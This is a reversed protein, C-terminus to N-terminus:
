GNTSADNDGGGSGGTGAGGSGGSGTAGAGYDACAAAGGAFSLGSDCKHGIYPDCYPATAICDDNTACTETANVRAQCTSTSDCRLNELCPITASCAMSQAAKGLCTFLNNNAPDPACYAGASCVEGPNGCLQGKNKVVRVACNGKDCIRSADKCDYKVACTTASDGHFVLACVDAMDALEAPTIPTTKAYVSNTKNVCAGVNEVHFRRVGAQKAEAAAMLCVAKRQTACVAPSATGCRTTVQCEKEAKQTCFVDETIPPTSSGGGGCGILGGAWGGASMWATAVALGGLSKWNSIM